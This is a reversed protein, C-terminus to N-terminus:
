VVHCTRWDCPEEVVVSTRWQSPAHTTIHVADTSWIYLVILATAVIAGVVTIQFLQASAQERLGNLLGVGSMAMLSFGAWAMLVLQDNASMHVEGYLVRNSVYEFGPNM